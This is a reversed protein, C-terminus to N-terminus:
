SFQSQAHMVLLWLEYKGTRWAAAANSMHLEDGEAVQEPHRSLGDVWGDWELDIAQLMLLSLASYDLKIMAAMWCM